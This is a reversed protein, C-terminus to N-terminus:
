GHAPSKGWTPKRRHGTCMRRPGGTSACSPSPRPLPRGLHTLGGPQDSRCRPSTPGDDPGGRSSRACAGGPPPTRAIAREHGQRQTAMGVHARAAQWTGELPWRRVLWALSQVPDMALETCLWAQPEFTGQPARGLVGRLPLPPRGAHEWGGPASTVEGAREDARSGRRVPVTTWGPDADRRAHAVTPLRRGHLRARGTPRPEGPPAPAYRAADRRGRTLGCRPPPRQRVRWLRTMVAGSSATVVVLPREPLWRRVVLCRPRAGDTLTKPRQGRAPHAREAPALGPLCPLAGVRKAGPRAVLLRLRLWRWGRATVLHRHASRGAERDLGPAQLQAGRRRELTEELGLSLPGAPALSSVLLGWWLRAGALSSWVARNWVRHSPQFLKAPALGLGRLAASVPRQGPALLAGVLLVPVQQWVRQTCLPAFPTMLLVFAKPVTLM